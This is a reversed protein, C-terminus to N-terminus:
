ATNAGSKNGDLAALARKAEAALEEDVVVDYRDAEMSRVSAFDRRGRTLAHALMGAIAGLIAGFWLGDFALWGSAVVPNFWDFAGFLWGILLGVIGGVLLGRIAAEGYTMRGTVQEVIKLDRGVISTREVAFGTDSLFDVAREADRYDSYSAV